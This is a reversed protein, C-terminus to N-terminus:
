GLKLLSNLPHNVQFVTVDGPHLGRANFAVKTIHELHSGVIEYVEPFGQFQVVKLQQGSPTPTPVPVPPKVVPPVVVPPVVSPLPMPARTAGLLPYDDYNAQSFNRGFLALWAWSLVSRGKFGYSMGWSNNVILGDPTYGVVLLDHGGTNIDTTTPLIVPLSSRNWVNLSVPQAVALCAIGAGDLFAMVAVHDRTTISPLDNSTHVSGDPFTARYLGGSIFVFDPASPDSWGVVPKGHMMGAAQVGLAMAHNFCTGTLGQDYVPLAGYTANFDYSLAM